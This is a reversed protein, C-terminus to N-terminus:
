KTRGEGLGGGTSYIDAKIRQYSKQKESPHTQLFATNGPPSGGDHLGM